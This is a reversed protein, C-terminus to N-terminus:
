AKEGAERTQQEEHREGAVRRRDGGRVPGREHRHRHHRHEPGAPLLTLGPFHGAMYRDRPDVTKHVLFRLVPEEALVEIRDVSCLPTAFTHGDPSAGAADPSATRASGPSRSPPSSPAGSM